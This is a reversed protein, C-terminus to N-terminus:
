NKPFFLEPNRRKKNEIVEYHLHPGTSRGTSGVYGIIQGAEVLDGAKVEFKSLHAYATRYKPGHVILVYNGYGGAVDARAVKGSATAYIPNGQISKLGIRAMDVGHHDTSRKYIPHNRMGFASSIRFTGKDLPLLHPVSNNNPVKGVDTFLIKRWEMEHRLFTQYDKRWTRLLSDQRAKEEPTMENKKFDNWSPFDDQAHAVQAAM